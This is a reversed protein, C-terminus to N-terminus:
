GKETNGTENEARSETAGLEEDEKKDKEEKEEQLQKKMENKNYEYQILFAIIGIFLTVFIFSPMEECTEKFSISEWKYPASGINFPPGSTRKGFFKTGFFLGIFFILMPFFVEKLTKKLIRNKM